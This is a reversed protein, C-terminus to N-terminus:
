WLESILLEIINNIERTSYKIKLREEIPLFKMRLYQYLEKNRINAEESSGKEQIYQHNVIKETLCGIHMLIGHLKEGDFVLTFKDRATLITNYLNNLLWRGEPLNLHTTYINLLMKFIPKYEIKDPLYERLFSELSVCDIGPIDVKFASIVKLITYKESLNMISNHFQEKDRLSLNIVKYDDSPYAEHVLEKIREATGEGTYCATVIIKERDDEIVKEKDTVRGTSQLSVAIEKLPINILAKRIAEIVMPTSTMDIAITNIGTEERIVKGFFKLSGMDVLILAGKGQNHKKVLSKVHELGEAPKMSLPMDFAKGHNTNLLENAVEVMSRATYSGHMAVIVAVKGEKEQNDSAFFMTIFGLEDIPVEIDYREEVKEGLVMALKFEKPYERKISSLKPNEILKGARAREIFADLHILLGLFTNRSLKRKLKFEALPMFTKLIDYLEEDILNRVKEEEQVDLGSLYSELYSDLEQSLLRTMTKNDYGKFQLAKGRQELFEYLNQSLDYKDEEGERSTYISDSSISLSEINKLKAANLIGMRVEENFDQLAISINEEEQSRLFAKACAIQLDSKLQGINNLCDYSLIARLAEREIEISKSIRKSEDKLFTRVLLLREEETRERLSPLNITVPIRRRFTKLLASDANETTACILMLSINIEQTSGLPVYYGYDILTFLMEQGEPPLRHIEDLLLIGGRSKEIIGARDEHAGTYSGKKVGFLQAILLQPNNAYDACNFIAFSDNNMIKKNELAYKFMARAFYSKGVGTEGVILTHLGKPPYVLAAKALSIQHKLSSEYGILRTFPDEPEEVKIYDMYPVYLVPRGKTKYVKNEEILKSLERVVNPRQIGLLESLDGASCGVVQKNKNQDRCANLLANFIEDSKLAFDDESRQTKQRFSQM